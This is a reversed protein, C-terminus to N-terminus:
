GFGVRADDSEASVYVIKGLDVRVTGDESDLEHWGTNGLAAYFAKLQPDEVRLALVQGGQFGVSIRRAGSAM